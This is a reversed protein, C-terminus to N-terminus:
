TAVDIFSVSNIQNCLSDASRKLADLTHSNGCEELRALWALSGLWGALGALWGPWGALGAPCRLRLGGPMSTLLEKQLPKLGGRLAAVPRWLGGCAPYGETGGGAGARRKPDGCAAVPRIAKQGEASRKLADLM